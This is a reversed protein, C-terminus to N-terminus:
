IKSSSQVVLTVLCPGEIQKRNPKFGYIDDKHFVVSDFVTKEKM